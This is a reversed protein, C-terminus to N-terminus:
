LLEGAPVPLLLTLAPAEPLESGEAEREEAEGLAEEAAVGVKEVVAPAAVPLPALEPLRRELPLPLALAQLLALLLPLRSPPLLLLAPLTLLLCLAEALAVEQAEALWALLLALALAALLLESGEAELLREPCLLALPRDLLLAQAEPPLALLLPLLLRDKLALLAPLAVGLASGASGQEMHELMVSM